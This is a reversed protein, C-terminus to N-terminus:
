GRNIEEHWCVEQCEEVEKKQALPIACIWHKQGPITPESDTVCSYLMMLTILLVKSQKAKGVLVSLVFIQQLFPRNDMETM